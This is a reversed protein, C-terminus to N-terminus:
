DPLITFGSSPPNPDTPPPTSEPPPDISGNTRTVQYSTVGHQVGFDFEIHSLAYPNSVSEVYITFTNGQIQALVIKFGLSDTVVRNNLDLHSTEQNTAAKTTVAVSTGSVATQIVFTETESSNDEGLGPNADGFKIKNASMYEIEEYGGPNNVTSAFVQEDISAVSFFATLGFLGAALFKYYQKQNRVKM